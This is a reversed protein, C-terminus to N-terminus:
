SSGAQLWGAAIALSLLLLGDMWGALGDMMPGEMGDWGEMGEIWGGSWGNVQQTERARGQGNEGLNRQGPWRRCTPRHLGRCSLEAARCAGCGRWSSRRQGRRRLLGGEGDVWEWGTTAAGLVRLALCSAATGPQGLWRRRDKRTAGRRKKEGKSCSGSSRSCRLFRIQCRLTVKRKGDLFNREGLEVM